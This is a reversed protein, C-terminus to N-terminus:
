SKVLKATASEQVWKIFVIVTLLAAGASLLAAAIFGPGTVFASGSLDGALRGLSGAAITLAIVTGRAEPIQEGMIPVGSVVSFEFGLFAVGISVLGLWLASSGVAVLLTYGSLIVILGGTVGRKKGIRDLFLASSASAAIEFIGFFSQAMGRQATNLGFQTELWSAYGVQINEFAFFILFWAAVFALASHHRGFSRLDFAARVDRIASAEELLLMLAACLLAAVGLVIFPVRWGLAAIILGVIPVGVLGALAWTMEIAGTVRGRRAFPVRDSVYAILTPIVITSGIGALVFGLAAVPLGAASGTLIAGSGLVALGLMVSRRHGVRDSMVGFVPGLIGMGNRLSILAGVQEIPLGLGKAIDPLFPYIMRAATDHVARAIMSVAVIRRISTSETGTSLVNLELDHVQFESSARQEHTVFASGQM